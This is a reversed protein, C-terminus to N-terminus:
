QYPRNTITIYTSTTYYVPSDIYLISFLSCTISTKLKDKFIDVLMFSGTSYTKLVKYSPILRFDEICKSLRPIGTLQKGSQKKTRYQVLSLLVSISSAIADIFCNMFLNYIIM